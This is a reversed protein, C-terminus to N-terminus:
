MLRCAALLLCCAALLLCCAALLLCCAALLLCCAALLLCCAALLLCSGAAARALLGDRVCKVLAEPLFVADTHQLAQRWLARRTCIFHFLSAAPASPSLMYWDEAFTGAAFAGARDFTDRSMLVSSLVCVHSHTHTPTRTYTRTLAHIRTYAHKHACTCTHVHAHM